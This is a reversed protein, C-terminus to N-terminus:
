HFTGYKCITETRLDKKESGLKRYNNCEQYLFYLGGFIAELYFNELSLIWASKFRFVILSLFM